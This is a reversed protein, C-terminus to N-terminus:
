EEYVDINTIDGIYDVDVDDILLEGNDRLFEEKEQRTMAKFKELDEGRMELEYHGYRLHGVVYSLQGLITAM